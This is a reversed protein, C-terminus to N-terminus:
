SQAAAAALAIHSALGKVTPTEFMERLTLWVGFEARVRSLIRVAALSTGGLSFYDDEAGIPAIHLTESWIRVLALETTATPEVPDGASISRQAVTTRLAAVVSRATQYKTAIRTLEETDSISSARQKREGTQPSATLVPAGASRWATLNDHVSLECEFPNTADIPLECLRNLFERAPRNRATPTVPIVVREVGREAAWIKLKSVMQDEVGRGLARCSLLFEEVQLAGSSTDFLLVGVLGYDGYVDSVRVTWCETEKHSLRAILSQETHLVGTLNFQTTRQTLQAVRALDAPTAREFQMEIQLSALFEEVTLARKSQDSRQKEARYMSTRSQDEATASGHDFIWLHELFGPIEESNQPLEFTLVEPCGNRVEMCEYPSDDLFIFSDLALGLDQSLTKLNDSKPAWNIQWAAFHESRLLSDKHELAAMVDEENNKSALLLLMGRELQQLMFEHLKRYPPLVAMSGEGCVGHWLTNDCDLVIVKRGKRTRAYVWRAAITGAAAYMEESFPIDGLQKTFPDRVEGVGYLSVADALDLASWGPVSECQEILKAKASASVESTEACPFLLIVGGAGQSGAMRLSALLDDVTRLLQVGSEGQRTWHDLDLGVVNIGGRNLNLMGGELLLQIVQNYPAVEIIADIGLKSMWHVLSEELPDITFNAALCIRLADKTSESQSSM